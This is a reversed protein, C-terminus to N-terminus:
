SEMNEETKKDKGRSMYEELDKDLDETTVKEKKKRDFKKGGKKPAGKGKVAGGKRGKVIGGKEKRVGGSAVKKVSVRDLIAGTGDRNSDSSLDVMQVARGDIAIGAFDKMLKLVDGRRRTVVMATGLSEGMENHNVTVTKFPYGKFLQQLDLTSVNKPLNSILLKGISSIPVRRNIFKAGAGGTTRRTKQNIRRGRGYIADYKDNKWQRGPKDGRRGPKGIRSAGRGRLNKTGRTKAIIDDLSMNVADVAAM